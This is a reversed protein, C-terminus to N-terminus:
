GRRRRMAGLGGLGALLLFGAAPVPIVAMTQTLTVRDLLMGFNDGGDHDIFLGGMVDSGVSFTVSETVDTLDASLFSLAQTFIGAVGFTLTEDGDRNRGAFDLSLTYTAGALFTFGATTELRGANASSGDLDLCGASGCPLGFGGSTYLDVTGETVTWNALGTFNNTQVTGAAGAVEAAFDDDFLTTTTASAASALMLAAACTTGLFKM